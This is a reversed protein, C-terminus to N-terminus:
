TAQHGIGVRIMTLTKIAILNSRLNLFLIEGLDKNMTEIQKKRKQM